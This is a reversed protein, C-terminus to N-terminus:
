RSARGRAAQTGFDLVERQAGDAGPMALSSGGQGASGLAFTTGGATPASGERWAIGISPGGGGGGGHGGRGGAGGVGGGGAAGIELRCEREGSGSPGGLGGAGGAGGAGGSGGGETRVVCQSIVIGSTNVLVLGFSGGGGSGGSAGTGPGGGGGGGGGGNGAGPVLDSGAGGSSGGGGGGGSGPGGAGGSSGNSPVYVADNLTGLEAGGFGDPGPEGPGGPEGALGRANLPGGGIGGVGSDPGSGSGGDEGVFLPLFGGGGGKGGSYPQGAGGAGGAGPAASDDCSGPSGPEGSSGSTGPGGDQGGTGSASSGAEITCGHFTITQSGRLVVAYSSGGPETADASRITLGDIRVESAEASGTVATTGGSIITPFLAPDRNWSGAQFGGFLGVGGVLAVTEGYIGQALHVSADSEAAAAIAAAITQKPQERTGPNSDSGDPSAYVIPPSITIAIRDPASTYTGDNVRLDFEIITTDAPATFTPKPGSLFGTGGTVDPGLRQTWQYLLPAGEPDSSKTGDLTVTSGFPVDQDPGANAVPALHLGITFTWVYESELSNGALDKVGTTLTATYLQGPPLPGLPTFVATSESLTVAGPIAAVGALFFTAPTISGEAVWESFTARVTANSGVGTAGDGPAVFIVTPRISDAPPPAAGPPPEPHTPLKIQSSECSLAAWALLLLIPATRRRHTIM